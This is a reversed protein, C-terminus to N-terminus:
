ELQLTAAILVNVVAVTPCQNWKPEQNESKAARQASSVKKAACASELARQLVQAQVLAV